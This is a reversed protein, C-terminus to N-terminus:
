KWNWTSGLVFNAHQRWLVGIQGNHEVGLQLLLSKIIVKELSLNFEHLCIRNMYGFAKNQKGLQEM